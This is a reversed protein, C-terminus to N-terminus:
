NKNSNETYNRSSGRGENTRYDKPSLGFHERFSTSLHQFNNFGYKLGIESIPKRAYRPDILDDAIRKLRIQRIYSSISLSQSSFIANLRRVSMGAAKAVKNRDLDPDGLNDSIYSQARLLTFSEPSSLAINGQDQAALGVAILDILTDQLLSELKEGSENIQRSFAIINQVVMRGMESQGCIKRAAMLEAGPWRDLLMDAPLQVVLQSFGEHLDLQYPSTSCYLAMDGMTLTSSSGFQAIRSTGATQLSLLFYSDNDRRIDSKRRKVSHASGHVRSLSLKSHRSIEISGNFDRRLASECGLRVYTECVAEQWYAFRDNPQINETDYHTHITM